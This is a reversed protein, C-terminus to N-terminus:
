WLDAANTSTSVLGNLKHQKFAASIAAAAEKAIANNSGDQQSSLIKPIAFTVIIGLIALAILLEAM